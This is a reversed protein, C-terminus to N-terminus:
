PMAQTTSRLRHNNIDLTCLLTEDPGVTTNLKAIWYMEIGPYLPDGIATELIARTLEGPQDNLDVDELRERPIPLVGNDPLHFNDDNTWIRFRDHQLKTLAAFKRVDPQLNSTFTGPEPLEGPGSQRCDNGHVM